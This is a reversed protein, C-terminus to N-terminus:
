RRQSTLEPRLKGFSRSQQLHDQQLKLVAPSFLRADMKYFDNGAAAFLELFSKGFSDSNESPVAQAIDVLSDWDGEVKLTVEGGYIIADNTLGISELSSKGTPPLPARGSGSCISNLGGGLTEWQHLATELSRAVIQLTGALSNTPAVCLHIQNPVINMEGSLYEIVEASPLQDSELVLLVPGTENPKIEFHDWLAEKGRRIRGPGSAMAFYKGVSVPWGAYQSGLTAVVPHQSTVNVSTAEAESILEVALKDGTSLRALLLGAQDSGAVNVGFDWVTAESIIHSDIEGCAKM